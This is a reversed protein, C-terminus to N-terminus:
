ACRVNARVSVGATTGHLAELVGTLAAALGEVSPSDMLHRHNGEVDIVHLPGEAVSAWGNTPDDFSVGPWDEPPRTARFLHLAGDYRGPRYSRLAESHAHAVRRLAICMPDSSEPVGAQAAAASLLAGTGRMRTLRNVIRQLLPPRRPYHPGYADFLAVLKVEEGRQRLMRAMEFALNGGFSPGSLFYPGRPQQSLVLELYFRAAQEMGSFPARKGELGRAQIGYVPLDRPLLSVFRSAFLLNGGVPHLLWLPPLQLGAKLAVILSEDAV